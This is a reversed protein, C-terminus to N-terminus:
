KNGEGNLEEVELYVKCLENPSYIVLPFHLYNM